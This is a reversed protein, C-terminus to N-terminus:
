RSACNGAVGEVTSVRVRQPGAANSAGADLTGTVRVQQNVHDRLAPMNGDLVYSGAAPNTAGSTSAANTLTYREGPSNQGAAMQDAADTASGGRASAGTTASTGPQDANQLCGTLTVSRRQDPVKDGHIETAGAQSSNHSQSAGGCAVTASLLVITGISKM